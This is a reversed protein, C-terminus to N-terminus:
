DKVVVVISRFLDEHARQGQGRLCDLEIVAIATAVPNQSGNVVIPAVWADGLLAILARNGEIGVVGVGNGAEAREDGTEPARLLADISDALGHAEVGIM